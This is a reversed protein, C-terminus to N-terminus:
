EKAIIPAEAIIDTIYIGLITTIPSMIVTEMVRIPITVTDVAATSMLASIRAFSLDVIPAIATSIAVALALIVAEPMVVMTIIVAVPIVELAKRLLRNLAPLGSAQM